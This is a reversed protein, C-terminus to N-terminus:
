KNFLFDNDSSVIGIVASIVNEANLDFNISIKELYQKNDSYLNVSVIDKGKVNMGCKLRWGEGDPSIKNIYVSGNKKYSVFRMLARMANDRIDAILVDAMNDIILRGKDSIAYFEGGNEGDYTAISCTDVLEYFAETFDFHNVAGEWMVVESLTDYDIELGMKEFLRFLYLLYLKIDDKKLILTKIGM